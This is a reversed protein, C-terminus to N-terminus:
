IADFIYISVQELLKQLSEGDSRGEFDIFLASCNFTLKQKHSVCKTPIEADMVPVTKNVKKEKKFELDYDYNTETIIFDEPRFM